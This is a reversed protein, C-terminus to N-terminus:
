EPIFQKSTGVKEWIAVLTIDEQVVDTEFDWVTKGNQWGKLEYDYSGDQKTLLLPKTAKKGAQVSESEVPNGGNTDFTVTYFIENWKATLTIDKTVSDTDFNWEREGDYWGDFTYYTRTPDTPKKVKENEVVKEKSVSSGGESDFTVTYVTAGNTQPLVDNTKCGCLLMSQAGLALILLKTLFSNKKMIGSVLCRRVDFVIRKRKASYDYKRNVATLFQFQGM